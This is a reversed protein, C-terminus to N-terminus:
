KHTCSYAVNAIAGNACGFTIPGTASLTPGPPLIFSIANINTTNLFSTLLVSIELFFLDM